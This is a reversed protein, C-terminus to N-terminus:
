TRSSSIHRDSTCPHRTEQPGRAIRGSVRHLQPSDPPSNPVKGGTFIYASTTIRRHTEILGVVEERCLMILAERHLNVVGVDQKTHREDFVIVDCIFKEDEEEQQVLGMKLLTDGMPNKAGAPIVIRSMMTLYNEKLQLYFCPLLAQIQLVAAREEASVEATLPPAEEIVLDVNASM